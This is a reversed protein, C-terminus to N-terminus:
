GRADGLGDDLRLRRPGPRLRSRSSNAPARRAPWSAATPSRPRACPRCPPAGAARRALM